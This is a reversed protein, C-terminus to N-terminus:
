DTGSEENDSFTFEEYDIENISHYSTGTMFIDRYYLKNIPVLLHKNYERHFGMLAKLKSLESLYEKNYDHFITPDIKDEMEESFSRGISHYSLIMPDRCIPCKSRNTEEHKFMRLGCEGCVVENHKNSCWFYIDSLKGCVCCEREPIAFTKCNDMINVLNHFYSVLIKNRCNSEDIFFLTKKDCEMSPYLENFEVGLKAMNLCHQDLLQKFDMLLQNSEM